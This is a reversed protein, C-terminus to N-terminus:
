GLGTYGKGVGRSGKKMVKKQFIVHMDWWMVGQLNTLHGGWTIFGPMHIGFLGNLTGYCKSYCSCGM